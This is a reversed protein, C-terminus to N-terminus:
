TGTIGEILLLLTFLLLSMPLRPTTSMTGWSILSLAKINLTFFLTQRTLQCVDNTLQRVIQNALM